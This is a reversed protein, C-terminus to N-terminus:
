CGGGGGGRRGSSRVCPRTSSSSNLPDPILNNPYRYTTDGNPLIPFATYSIKPLAFIISTLQSVGAIGPDVCQGSATKGAPCAGQAAAPVPLAFAAAVALCAIPKAFKM